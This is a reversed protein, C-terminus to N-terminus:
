IQNSLQVHFLEMTVVHIVKCLLESALYSRVATEAKVVEGDRGRDTRGFALSTSFDVARCSLEQAAVCVDEGDPALLIFFQLNVHITM